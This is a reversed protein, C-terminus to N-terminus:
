ARPPPPSPHWGVADLLIGERLGADSVTAASLGLGALAAALVVAGPVIVDARGPELGPTRAREALPLAALQGTLRAIAVASLRHGHVRGPDYV